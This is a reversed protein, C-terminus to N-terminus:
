KSKEVQQKDTDIQPSELVFLFSDEVPRSIFIVKWGRTNKLVRAIM